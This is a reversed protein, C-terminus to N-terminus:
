SDSFETNPPLQVSQVFLRRLRRASTKLWSPRKVAPSLQQCDRAATQLYDYLSRCDAPVDTQQAHHHDLDRSVFRRVGSASVNLGITQAASIVAACYERFSGPEYKVLPFPAERHLDALRSNYEIWLQLGQETTLGDRVSLSKAVSLPHRFTGVLRCRNGVASRWHDSLLLTRPDKVGAPCGASSLDSIIDQIQRAYTPHVVVQDAPRHWAAKNLGLIRDHLMWVDSSERNGKANFRGRRSVDGLHLGCAQLCGALCSTGSRHMGLILVFPHSASEPM